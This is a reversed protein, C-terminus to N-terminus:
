AFPGDFDCVNYTWLDIDVPASAPDAVNTPETCLAIGGDAVCLPDLARAIAGNACLATWLLLALIWHPPVKTGMQGGVPRRAAVNREVDGRCPSRRVGHLQRDCAIGSHRLRRRRRERHTRQGVDLWGGDQDIRARKRARG